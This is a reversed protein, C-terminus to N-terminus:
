YKGVRSVCLCLLMGDVDVVQAHKSKAEDRQQLHATETRQKKYWGKRSTKPRTRSGEDARKTISADEKGDVRGCRLADCRM